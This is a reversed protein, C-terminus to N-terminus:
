GYVKEVVRLKASRSRPNNQLEEEGPQIPKKTIRKIKRKVGCVCIPTQKPCVCGGTNIRFMNKVIRDELSHFSIIAIRGKKPLVNIAGDIMKQLNGVESNVVMRLAQFVKTAPHTKGKRKKVGSIIAALQTTTKIKKEKRTEIIAKAIKYSMKEDAFVEFVESLENVEWENVIEEATINGLNPNMRMDLPQENQFSMGRKPDHIQEIRWGLDAVIAKPPKPCYKKVISEIEAFNENVYVVRDALDSVEKNIRNKTDELSSPDIDIAIVLGKKGVKKVLAMTHGGSGATADVVVDAEQLDCLEITKKLLVPIHKASFKM